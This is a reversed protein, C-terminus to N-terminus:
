TQKYYALRLRRVLIVTYLLCLLVMLALYCIAAGLTGYLSVITKLGVAAILAMLCCTWLLEKQCRMVTLVVTLYGSGAMFGSALLLVMLEAKYGSLDTACLLSLVPIGLVYGGLLCIASLGGIIMIQKAIRSSLDKIRREDWEVAMPVLVPQYIFNSLLKVVFVPMSVFGYCAQIEDTLCADIAYKPANNVYFSIFSIACLPFTIWLLKRIQGFDARNISIRIHRDAESCIGAAANWIYGQKSKVATDKM